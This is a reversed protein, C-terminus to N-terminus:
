KIMNLVEGINQPEVIEKYRVGPYKSRLFSMMGAQNMKEGTATNTYVNGQAGLAAVGGHDEVSIGISDLASRMGSFSVVGKDNLAGDFGAQYLFSAVNFSDIYTGGAVNDLEVDSMVENEFNKNEM